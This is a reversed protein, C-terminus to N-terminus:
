LGLLYAGYTTLKLGEAKSTQAEQSVASTSNTIPSSTVEPHPSHPGSKSSAGRIRSNSSSSAQSVSPTEDSKATPFSLKSSTLDPFIHPDKKTYNSIVTDNEHKEVTKRVKELINDILEHKDKNSSSGNSSSERGLNKDIRAQEETEIEPERKQILNQTSIPLSPAQKSVICSKPLVVVGSGDTGSYKELENNYRCRLGASETPESNHGFEIELHDFVIRKNNVNEGGVYGKLSVPYGFLKNNRCIEVYGADENRAVFLNRDIVQSDISIGNDAFYSSYINQEQFNFEDAANVKNLCCNRRAINFINDILLDM